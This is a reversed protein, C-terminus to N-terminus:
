WAFSEEILDVVYGRRACQVMQRRVEDAMSGPGCVLVVHRKNAEMFSSLLEEANMRQGNEISIHEETQTITGHAERTKASSLSRSLHKGAGLHKRTLWICYKMSGDDLGGGSLDPLLDRKVLDLLPKERLSWALTFQRCRPMMKKVAKAGVVPHDVSRRRGSEHREHEQSFQKAFGAAFTIGIGGAICLIKDATKLSCYSMVHGGYPGETMVHSQELPHSSVKKYLRATTGEQIRLICRVYFDNRGDSVMQAIEQAQMENTNAERARPNSVDECGWDAITFPHNEWFRGLSPFYVFTHMGPRVSWQRKVRLTLIAFKTGPVMKVDATTECFVNYYVVKALRVIRDYAWFAFAIYLWVVNGWKKDFRLEVHYWSGVLCLLALIIHLVLFFEYAYARFPLSSLCAMFAMSTTAIVGWWFYSKTVNNDYENGPYYFTYDITYALSHLVAHLIAIRATWRHLTLFSTPSWGCLSALPNNRTSFLIALAMNAFSLVGTRNGVYAAIQQDRNAFWTNPQVSYFPATSFIINLIVSLAIFSTIPRAPLYGIRGPLPQSHRQNLLAPLTFRAQM